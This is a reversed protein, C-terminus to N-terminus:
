EDGEVESVSYGFGYTLIYDELTMDMDTIDTAMEEGVYRLHIKTKQDDYDGKIGTIDDKGKPYRVIFGYECAHEMLWQYDPTDRIDEYEYSNKYSATTVDVALGTQHENSGPEGIQNRAFQTGYKSAWSDFMAQIEDYSIYADQMLISYGEKSAANVLKELNKAADKTMKFNGAYAPDGTAKCEVLNSPVYDNITFGQKLLIGENEPEEILYLKDTSNNSDIFGYSIRMIAEIGKYDSKVYKPLDEIVCEDYSLYKEVTDYDIRNETFVNYQDITWNDWHKRCYEKSFGLIELENYVDYFSDVYHIVSIEALDPNKSEYLEYDYYHKENSYEDWVSLDIAHDMSLYEQIESKPLSLIVKREKSSYGLNRLAITDKQTITYLIVFIACVLVFIIYKLRKYNRKKKVLKRRLNGQADRYYVYKKQSPRSTKKRVVKKKPTTTRKKTSIVRKKRQVPRKKNEM